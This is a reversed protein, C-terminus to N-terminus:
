LLNLGQRHGSFSGPLGPCIEFGHVERNHALRDGDGTAERTEFACTVIFDGTGAM